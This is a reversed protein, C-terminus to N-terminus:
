LREDEANHEGIEIVSGLTKWLLPEPALRSPCVSPLYPKGVYRWIGV